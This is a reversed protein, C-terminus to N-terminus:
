WGREGMVMGRGGDGDGGGMVMGRGGDGDGGGM